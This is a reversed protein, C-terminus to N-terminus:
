AALTLRIGNETKKETIRYRKKKAERIVREVAYEQKLLGADKGIVQKVQREWYDVLMLYRNGRKVLGIEYTANPIKIAHDCKGLDKETIGDPLQTDNPNVLRGYWHYTKQGEMFVLSMRECAKKLATLDNIEIEIKSVHSM